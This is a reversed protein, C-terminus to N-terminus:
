AEECDECWGCPAAAHARALRWTGHNCLNAHVECVTIWPGSEPDLDAQEAHYISVLTGTQRSRRRQVCGALGHSNHSAM